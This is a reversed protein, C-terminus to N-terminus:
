RTAFAPVTPIQAEEEPTYYQCRDYVRGTVLVERYRGSAAQGRRLMLKSTGTSFSMVM